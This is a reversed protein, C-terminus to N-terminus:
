QRTPYEGKVVISFNICAYPNRVPISQGDGATSTNHSIYSDGLYVGSTPGPNYIAGNIYPATALSNGDPNTISTDALATSTELRINQSMDITHVHPPMSKTSIAVNEKGSMQAFNSGDHLMGMPTRGRLDPLCFTSVGDGGFQTHILSYLAQYSNIQLTQGQCLMYNYPAADFALLEIIGIYM